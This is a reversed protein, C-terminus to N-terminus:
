HRFYKAWGQKPFHQVPIDQVTQLFYKKMPRRDQGRVKSIGHKVVALQEIVDM